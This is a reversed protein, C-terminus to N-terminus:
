YKRTMENVRNTGPQSYLASQKHIETLISGRKNFTNHTIELVAEM